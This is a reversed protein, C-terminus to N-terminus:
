DAIWIWSFQQHYSEEGLVLPFSYFTLQSLVPYPSRWSHETTPCGWPSPAPCSRRSSLYFAGQRIEGDAEHPFVKCTANAPLHSEHHCCVATLLGNLDAVEERILWLSTSSTMEWFLFSLQRDTTENPQRTMATRPSRNQSLELEHMNRDQLNKGQDPPYILLSDLSSHEDHCHNHCTIAAPPWSGLPHFRPQLGLFLSSYGSEM